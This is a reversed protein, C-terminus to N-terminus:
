IASEKRFDDLMPPTMRGLQRRFTEKRVVVVSDYYVYSTCGLGCAPFCAHNADIIYNNGPYLKSSVPFCDVEELGWASIVVWPREDTCGKWEKTAYWIEFPQM